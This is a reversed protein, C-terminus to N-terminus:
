LEAEDVATANSVDLSFYVGKPVPCIIKTDKAYKTPFRGHFGSSRVAWCLKFEKYSTPFGNRKATKLDQAVSRGEAWKVVIGYIFFSVSM